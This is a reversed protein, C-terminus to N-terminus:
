VVPHFTGPAKGVAYALTISKGLDKMNSVPPTDRFHVWLDSSPIAHMNAYSNAAQLRACRGTDLLVPLTVGAVTLNSVYQANGINNVTIPSRRQLGSSPSPNGFKVHFPFVIGHVPTDFITLLLSLPILSRM